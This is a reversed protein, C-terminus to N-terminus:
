LLEAPRVSVAVEDTVDVEGAFMGRDDASSVRSWDVHGDRHIGILLEGLAALV